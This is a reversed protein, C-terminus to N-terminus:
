CITWHDVCSAYSRWCRFLLILIICVNQFNLNELVWWPLCKRSFAWFTSYLFSWGLAEMKWLRRTNFTKTWVTNRINYSFACIGFIRHFLLTLSLAKTSYFLSKTFAKKMKSYFSKDFTKNLFAEVLKKTDKSSSKIKMQNNNKRFNRVFNLKWNLLDRQSQHIFKIFINIFINKCHQIFKFFFM